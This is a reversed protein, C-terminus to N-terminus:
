KNERFMCTTMGPPPDPITLEFPPSHTNRHQQQKATQEKGATPKSFLELGEDKGRRKEGEPQRVDYPALSCRSEAHNPPMGEMGEAPPRYTLISKPLGGFQEHFLGHPDLSLQFPSGEVLVPPIQGTSWEAKPTQQTYITHPVPMPQPLAGAVPGCAPLALYPPFSVHPLFYRPPHGPFMTTRAM